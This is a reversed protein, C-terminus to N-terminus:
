LAPQGNVARWLWGMWLVDAASQEACAQIEVTKGESARYLLLVEMDWWSSTPVASEAIGTRTPASAEDAQRGRHIPGCGDVAV